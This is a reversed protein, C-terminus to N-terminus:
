IGVILKLYGADTSYRFLCRILGFSLCGVAEIKPIVIAKPNSETVSKNRIKINIKYYNKAHTIM